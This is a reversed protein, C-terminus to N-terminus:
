LKLDERVIKRPGGDRSTSWDKAPLVATLKDLQDLRVLRDYILQWGCDVEDDIECKGRQSGGCPGNLLSKSCRAIPCIGGTLHLVCNGCAQCRETWVGQEEPIGLFTTNLGPLIIADPYREAMGQVGIGCAMSIVADVDSVQEAVPDIYEWECQRQVTYEQVELKHGDIQEAMRLASALIGVEKEGGAFCVTVCTGCGLVLVKNCGKIMDRIEELPKQEGVIM